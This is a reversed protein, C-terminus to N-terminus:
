AAATAARLWVYRAGVKRRAYVTQGPFACRVALTATFGCPMRRGAEDYVYVRPGGGQFAAECDAAIREDAPMWAQQQKSSM